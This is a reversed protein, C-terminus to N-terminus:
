NREVVGNIKLKVIELSELGENDVVKVAIKHEGAKFKYTQKGEKDLLVTPLFSQENYAFDWAYFEIGAESQGTAVFEIEQLTKTTGLDNIEVQLVPKKAIPVIEEVTVLKILVNEENKLRAVEQVAGKGFSFAIIFGIPKQEIKNKEFNTKDFRQVASFFNDIVNRGINDSRKVQIPQNERTRGDLGLDGRQKSNAIGGFQGVIWTEFEFADKYRLTDYDYKHLQVTFPQSFLDQQKNLRFETVKIAQVSQDIGIWNRNLKDAVAITTGGGVFCDLVTDGESSSIKIIRELLEQPKQTPYGIREKAQSNIFPIEFITGANKEIGVNQHILSGDDNRKMVKKSVGEVIQRHTTSTTRGAHISPVRIINFIFKNSKSYRLIIDHQKVLGDTKNGTYKNSYYWIIEDRFNEYGFIKDLILVRIYAHAHWDCHVFISGTPKLIRHMEQIRDKLWSIYHDIGGSFRDEFSRVEGKDGWIVEYTRNSFFPPDIYILDVTESDITKLVELCDGLILKNIAM